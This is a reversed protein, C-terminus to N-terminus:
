VFPPARSRFAVRWVAHPAIEPSPTNTALYFTSRAPLDPPLAIQAFATLSVTACIDCVYGRHTDDDLPGGTSHQDVTWVTGDAISEAPTVHELHVHGFSAVFQILLAFLAACCGFRKQIRFRRM